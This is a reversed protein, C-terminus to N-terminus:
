IGVAALFVLTYLFGFRLPPQTFWWSVFFGTGFPAACIDFAYKGRHMRLYERHASILGGEKFEVRAAHHEPVQRREIASELSEYFGLSSTQFNEILQYWHSIVNSQKTM